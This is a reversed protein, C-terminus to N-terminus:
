KKNKERYARVKNLIDIVADPLKDATCEAFGPNVLIAKQIVVSPTQWVGMEKRLEETEKLRKDLDKSNKKKNWAEGLGVSKAIASLVEDDDINVHKEFYTDFLTDLLKQELAPQEDRAVLLLKAPLAGKTRDFVYHHVVKIDDGYPKSNKRYLYCHNCMPSVFEEVLIKDGKLLEKADGRLMYKGSFPLEEEPQQAIATAMLAIVLLSVGIVCSLAKM